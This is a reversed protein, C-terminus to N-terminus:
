DNYEINIAPLELLHSVSTYNKFIFFTDNICKFKIAKSNHYKFTDGYFKYNNCIFDTNMNRKYLIKDSKIYVAFPMGRSELIALNMNNEDFIMKHNYDTGIFLVTTDAIKDILVYGIPENIHNDINLSDTFINILKQIKPNVFVNNISDKLFSIENPIIPLPKEEMKNNCSQLLISLLFSLKM